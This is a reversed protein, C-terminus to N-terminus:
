RDHAGPTHGCACAWSVRIRRVRTSAHAPQRGGAGTLLAPLVRPGRVGTCATGFRVQQTSLSDGPARDGSRLGAYGAGHGRRLGRDSRAGRQHASIEWLSPTAHDHPTGAARLSSPEHTVEQEWRGAMCALM